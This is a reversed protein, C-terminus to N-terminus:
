DGKRQQWKAKKGGTHLSSVEQCRERNGDWSKWKKKGGIEAEKAKKCEQQKEKNINKWNQKMDLKLKVKRRITELNVLGEMEEGTDRGNLQIIQAGRGVWLGARWAAQGCIAATDVHAIWGTAVPTATVTLPAGEAALTYGSVCSM